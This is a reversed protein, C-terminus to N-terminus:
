AEHCGVGEGSALAEEPTGHWCSSPAYWRVPFRGDKWNVRFAHAIFRSFSAFYTGGPLVLQITRCGLSKLQEIIGDDIGGIGDRYPHVGGTQSRIVKCYKKEKPYFEGGPAPRGAYTTSLKM